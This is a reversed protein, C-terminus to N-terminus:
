KTLVVRQYAMEHSTQLLVFYVGSPLHGANWRVEHVGANKYGNILTVALQGSLKIGGSSLAAFGIGSM